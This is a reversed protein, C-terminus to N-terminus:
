SPCAPRPGGISGSARTPSRQLGSPPPSADRGEASSQLRRGSLGVAVQVGLQRRAAEEVRGRRVSSALTNQAIAFLWPAATAVEPRFREAAAFAAAFVEATLDAAM